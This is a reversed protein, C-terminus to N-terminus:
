PLGLRDLIEPRENIPVTLVWKRWQRAKPGWRSGGTALESAVRWVVIEADYDTFLIRHVKWWQKYSLRKGTLWYWYNRLEDVTVVEVPGEEYLRSFDLECYYPVPYLLIGEADWCDWGKPWQLGDSAAHLAEHLAVHALVTGKMDSSLHITAPKDTKLDRTYSGDALGDLLFPHFPDSLFYESPYTGLGSQKLFEDTNPISHENEDQVTLAISPELVMPPGSGYGVPVSFIAYTLGVIVLALVLLPVFGRTFM